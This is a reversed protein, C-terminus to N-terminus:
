VTPNPADGSSALDPFLSDARGRAFEPREASEEPRVLKGDGDGLFWKFSNRICEPGVGRSRSLGDTLSRGCICCADHSRALVAHHDNIFDRITGLVREIDVHGTTSVRICDWGNADGGVKLRCNPKHAAQGDIEAREQVLFEIKVTEVNLSKRARNWLPATILKAAPAGDAILRLSILPRRVYPPGGKDNELDAFFYSLQGRFQELLDAEDALRQKIYEHAECTLQRFRDGIWQRDCGSEKAEDFLRSRDAEAGEHGQMCRSQIERLRDVFERENMM